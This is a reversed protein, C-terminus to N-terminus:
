LLSSQYLIQPKEVGFDIEAKKCDNFIKDQEKYELGCYVTLTQGLSMRDFFAICMM